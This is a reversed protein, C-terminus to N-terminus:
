RPQKAKEKRNKKQEGASNVKSASETAANESREVSPTSLHAGSAFGVVTNTGQAVDIYSIFQGRPTQRQADLVDLGQKLRRGADQSGLRVEIQSDSGALQARIDRVDALNIESIRESIGSANCERQLELFRRVRDINERSALESEEESLGRLFFSPVPDTAKMEGLFVADEDVWRFRGASTRVVARPVREVIRVRIGDPLVRSVVASRVWPVRQLKASLDNLDAKWVGTKSIEHRTIAQVDELSARSTGQVEVRRIQFFSASAASRYGAFLLLVAVIAVVAKLVTPIYGAVSRLRQAFTQSGQGRERRAPRQGAASSRRSPAMGSRNGVKQVVAHERM